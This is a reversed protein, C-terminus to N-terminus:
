SYITECVTKIRLRKLKRTFQAVMLGLIEACREENTSEDWIGAYDGEPEQPPLGGTARAWILLAHFLEHAIVGFSLAYRDFHIEGLVSEPSLRPRCFGMVALDGIKGGYAIRLSKQTAHIYVEFYQPSTKPSVHIKFAPKPM